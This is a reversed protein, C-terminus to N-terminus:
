QMAEREELRDLAARRLLDLARLVVWRRAIEGDGGFPYRSIVTTDPTGLAVFTLGPDDGYVDGAGSANGLVALGWGGEYTDILRAAAEAAVMESAPGYADIKAPSLGLKGGLDAGDRVIHAASLSRRGDETSAILRALEGGTVSEVLALRVGALALMRGTVEELREEGTGFVARPGLQQRIVAEMEGILADAAEPDEAHAAIRIDVIGDHASLGVSPNASRMERDIREDIWSEGLGATRLTKMRIVAADGATRAALYPIVSEHLMKEMERPVGPLAILAGSASEVIFGPATGTPNEIRIAGHPLESQRRNNEGVPRGWRGFMAEINALAVRDRELARDTAAAAAERTVDDVTPGLGGTVIVVDARQLAQRLVATLRMVDDGVSTRYVVRVGVDRLARAITTANTDVKEGLLLETGSTVIEADM